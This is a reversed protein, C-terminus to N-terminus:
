GELEVLQMQFALDEDSVYTSDAQPATESLLLAMQLEEDEVDGTAAVPTRIDLDDLSLAMALDLDSDGGSAEAMPAKYKGVKGPLLATFTAELEVDPINQSNLFSLGTKMFIDWLRTARGVGCYGSTKRMDEGASSLLSHVSEAMGIDYLRNLWRAVEVGDLRGEKLPTFSGRPNAIVHELIVNPGIKERLAQPSDEPALPGLCATLRTTLAQYAPLVGAKGDWFHADADYSLVAPSFSLLFIFIIRLM